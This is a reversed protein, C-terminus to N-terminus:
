GCPSFVKQLNQPEIGVGNDRVFYCVQGNETFSGIEIRLKKSSNRFKVANEILNQIVEAIRSRDGYAEPLRNMVDVTAGGERLQGHMYVKLESLLAEM